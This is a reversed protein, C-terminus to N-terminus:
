PLEPENGRSPSSAARCSLTGLKDYRSNQLPTGKAARNSDGGLMFLARKWFLQRLANNRERKARKARGEPVTGAQRFASSTKRSVPIGLRPLRGFFVCIPFVRYAGNSVSRPPAAGGRGRQAGGATQRRTFVFCETRHRAGAGTQRLRFRRGLPNRLRGIRAGKDKVMSM